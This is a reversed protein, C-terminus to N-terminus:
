QDLWGYLWQSRQVAPTSLLESRLRDRQEPPVRQALVGLDARQQPTFQRLRQLLPERQAEPVQLMLPALRVFDRGLVPGLLWGRQALPEQAAFRERLAQQEHDPLVAYARAARTVTGRETAPLAQWAQWQTRRQQQDQRSRAEWAQLRRELDRRQDPNMADLRAQRQRLQEQVDTPLQQVTHALGAPLARLPASLAALVLVAAVALAAACRMHRDCPM